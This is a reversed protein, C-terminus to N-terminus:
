SKLIKDFEGCLLGRHDEFSESWGSWTPKPKQRRGLTRRAWRKLKEELQLARYLTTRFMRYERLVTVGERRFRKKREAFNTSIGVKVWKGASDRIQLLYLFCERNRDAVPLKDASRHAVFPKCHPCRVRNGPTLEATFFGHKACRGTVKRVGTEPCATSVVKTGRITVEAEETAACAECGPRTLFQRARTTRVYGCTRCVGVCMAEGSDPIEAFSFEPAGMFFRLRRLDAASLGGDRGCGRCVRKVGRVVEELESVPLRREGGCGVCRIDCWGGGWRAVRLEGADAEALLKEAEFATAPEVVPIKARGRCEPCGSSGSLLRDIRAEFVSECEGCRLSLPKARGGSVLVTVRLGAADVEDQIDEVSQIKPM